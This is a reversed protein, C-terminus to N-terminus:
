SLAVRTIGANFSWGELDPEYEGKHTSLRYAVGGFLKTHKSIFDVEGGLEYYTSDEAPATHKAFVDKVFYEVTDGGLAKRYGIDAYARM